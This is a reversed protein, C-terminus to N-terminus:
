SPMETSMIVIKKRGIETIVPIGNSAARGEFAWEEGDPQGAKGWMGPQGGGETTPAIHTYGVVDNPLPTGGDGVSFIRQDNRGIVSLLGSAAFPVSSLTGTESIINTEGRYGILTVGYRKDPDPRENTGILRRIVTETKYDGIERYDIMEIKNAANSVIADITDTHGIVTAGQGVIKRAAVLDAWFVSATSHYAATSTRQAFKNASPIQYDVLCNIKNFTWDIAGTQLAQGRLYEYTDHIPQVVLKDYFNLLVARVQELTAQNNARLMLYLQQLERQTAESLRVRHAIKSVEQMFTSISIAGGEPYPSDMGVLGAMTATIVMSGGKATYDYSRVEPLFQAWLYDSNPRSQNAIQFAANPGLSNWVGSLDLSIQNLEPM